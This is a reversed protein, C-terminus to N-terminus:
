GSRVLSTRWVRFGGAWYGDPHQTLLNLLQCSRPERRFDSTGTKNCQLTRRGELAALISHVKGGSLATGMERQLLYRPSSKSKCPLGRPAEAPRFGPQVRRASVTSMNLPHGTSWARGRAPQTGRQGDGLQLLCPHHLSQDRRGLRQQHTGLMKGATQEKETTTAPFTDRSYGFCLTKPTPNQTSLGGDSRATPSSNTHQPPL